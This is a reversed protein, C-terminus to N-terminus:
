VGNRYERMNINHQPGDRIWEENGVYETNEWDRFLLGTTPQLCHM